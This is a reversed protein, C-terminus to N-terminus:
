SSNFGAPRTTSPKGQLWNPFCSGPSLESIRGPSFYTGAQLGLPPRWRAKKRRWDGAGRTSPVGPRTPMLRVQLRVDAKNSGSTLRAADLSRRRGPLTIQPVLSTCSCPCLQFLLLAPPGASCLFIIPVLPGLTWFPRIKGEWGQKGCRGKERDRGHGWPAGRLKSAYTHLKRPVNHRTAPM